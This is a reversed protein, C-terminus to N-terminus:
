YRGKKEIKQNNDGSNDSKKSCASACFVLALIGIGFIIHKKKMFFDGYKNLNIKWKRLIREKFINSIVPM